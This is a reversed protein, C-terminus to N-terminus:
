GVEDTPLDSLKQRILYCRRKPWALPIARGGLELTRHMAVHGVSPAIM